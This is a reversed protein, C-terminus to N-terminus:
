AGEEDRHVLRTGLARLGRCTASGFAYLLSGDNLSGPMPTGDAVLFRQRDDFHLVESCAHDALRGATTGGVRSQLLMWIAVDPFEEITAIAKRVWAAPDDYPPNCWIYRVTITEGDEARVIRWSGTLGDDDGDRKAYFARAKAPNRPITAVDLDFQELGNAALVRVLIPPPTLRVNPDAAGALLSERQDREMNALRAAMSLPMPNVPDLAAAKLRLDGCREISAAYGVYGASVDRKAAAAERASKSEGGRDHGQRNKAAEHEMPMDAAAIFAREIKRLHRRQVNKSEVFAAVDIDEDIRVYPIDLGLRVAAERRARGDVIRNKSDLVIPERVGHVRVDELFANFADGEINAIRELSPHVVLESAALFPLFAITASHTSM